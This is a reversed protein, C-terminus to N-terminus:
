ESDDVRPAVIINVVSNELKEIIKCPYDKAVSIQLNGDLESVCEIFPEGFSVAVGGKCSPADIVNLFKYKGSNSFAVSKEATKITLIADKNLEVDRIIDHLKEAKIEFVDTFNLNPENTDTELFSENVLEIDVNKGDGKITLLNGEKKITIMDGFRDLVKVVNEMDNMAVNGIAEYEVFAAKNLWAMVRSQKPSSNASMKLGDNEFRLVGEPISQRGTMRAKKLFGVLVKTKIKM